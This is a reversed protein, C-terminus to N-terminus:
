PDPTLRVPRVIFEQTLREEVTAAVSATRPNVGKSRVVQVILATYLCGVVGCSGFVIIRHPKESPELGQSKWSDLKTQVAPDAEFAAVFDDEASAAHFPVLSFVLVVIFTMPMYRM